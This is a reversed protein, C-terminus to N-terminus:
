DIEQPAGTGPPCIFLARSPGAMCEAERLCAADCTPPCEPRASCRLVAEPKGTAGILLDIVVATGTRPCHTAARRIFRPIMTEAHAYKTGCAPWAAPLPM